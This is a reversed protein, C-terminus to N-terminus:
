IKAALFRGLVLAGAQAANLSDLERAMPIAVAATCKQLVGPRVGKDENGLVLMAPFQPEFAYLDLAQETKQAAYVFYGQDVAQEVARGLNTVKAVPLQHLTGASAKVAAAGLYAANHKPLVLGAGGLGYLTRALVGANVPDQVQDLAVLVPLPAEVAQDLLHDFPVFGAGFLRAAAGQHQGPYLKDLAQRSVLSVRVGRDRCVKEIFHMERGKAGKLLFVSDVQEPRRKVTELVPKRGLVLDTEERTQHLQENNATDQMQRNQM